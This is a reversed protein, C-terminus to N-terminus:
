KESINLKDNEIFAFYINGNNEINFGNNEATVSNILVEPNSYVTYIEGTKRDFIDLLLKDGENLYENEPTNERYLLAIYRSGSNIYRWVSLGNDTYIKEVDYPTYYQWDEKTTDESIESYPPSSSNKEIKFELVYGSVDKYSSIDENNKGISINSGTVRYLGESLSKKLHSLPIIVENKDYEYLMYGEATFGYNEKTELSEWKGDTYKEFSWGNGYLMINDSKNELYVKLNKVDKPYNDFELYATIGDSINYSSKADSLSSENVDNNQCSCLSVSCLFVLLIILTKKM